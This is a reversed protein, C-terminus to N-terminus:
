FLEQLTLLKEFRRLAPAASAGLATFCLFQWAHVAM